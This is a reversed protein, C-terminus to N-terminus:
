VFESIRWNEINGNPLTRKVIVPSRKKELELKALEIPSPRPRSIYDLYVTDGNAIQQARIGIIRTKEYITLFPKTIKQSTDSM